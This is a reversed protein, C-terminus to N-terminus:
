VGPTSSWPLDKERSKIMKNRHIIAVKEHDIEPM